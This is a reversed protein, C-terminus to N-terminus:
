ESVFPAYARTFTFGKMIENFTKVGQFTNKPISEMCCADNRLFCSVNTM